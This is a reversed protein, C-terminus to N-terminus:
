EWVQKASQWRKLISDGLDRPKYRESEVIIEISQKKIM